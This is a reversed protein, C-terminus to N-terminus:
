FFKVDEAFSSLAASDAPFLSFPFADTVSRKLQVHLSSALRVTEELEKVLKTRKCHLRLRFACIFLSRTKKENKSGEPPM